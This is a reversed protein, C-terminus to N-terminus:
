IEGNEGTDDPTIRFLHDFKGSHFEEITIEQVNGRTAREEVQKQKTDVQAKFFERDRWIWPSLPEHLEPPIFLYYNHGLIKTFKRNMIAVVAVFPLNPITIQLASRRVSETDPSHSVVGEVKMEPSSLEIRLANEWDQRKTLQSKSDLSGYDKVYDGDVVLRVRCTGEPVPSDASPFPHPYSLTTSSSSSM